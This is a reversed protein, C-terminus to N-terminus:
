YVGDWKANFSEVISGQPDQIGQALTQFADSPDSFMDHNPETSFTDTKENYKYSYMQLSEVLFDTNGDEEANIYVRPFIRRAADIADAKKACRQVLSFDLGLNSCFDIRSQGTEISEVAIDHPALHYGYFIGHKNRYAWLKDVYETLSSGRDYMFNVIRIESGVQQFFIVAMADRRGLDWATNVAVRSDVPVSMLRGSEKIAQMQDSFIAGRIIPNWDCEFEQQYAEPGFKDTTNKKIDEITVPKIRDQDKYWQRIEVAETLEQPHDKLDEDWPFIKTTSIPHYFSEWEPNNKCGQFIEYLKNRGKPTGIFLVKAEPYDLTTPYLVKTWTDAKMDQYEDLVIFLTGMGRLNDPKEAGRLNITFYNTETGYTFVLDTANYKKSISKSTPLIETAKKLEDWAIQKAMGFTPAVYLIKPNVINPNSLAKMGAMLCEMIAMVSKGGRRHVVAVKFQADSKHVERQWPRPLYPLKIDM